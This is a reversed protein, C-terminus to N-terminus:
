QEKKTEKKGKAPKSLKEALSNAYEMVENRHEADLSRFVLLMGKEEGDLNYTGGSRASSRSASKRSKQTTDDSEAASGIQTTDLDPLFYSPEVGLMRALRVLTRLDPETDGLEYYAYTARNIHLVDAIQQQTIENKKRLTALKKGLEISM